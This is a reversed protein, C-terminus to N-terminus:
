NYTVGEFLDSEHLDEPAPPHARMYMEKGGFFLLLWGLMRGVLNPQGGQSAHCDAAASRTRGMAWIDIGAHIPFDVHALETLDVDQNRGFRRPDRGFLPLIRVFLRLLRRPFTQYYLKQPQYPPLDEPFQQPDGAAYFANVTAQHVAIHDPHRYGGIPDFTIVVQPRLRRISHVIRATVAEIDAAALANPHRNDASGPMGSDRYGLMEVSNLGLTRAACELENRRLEAISNFGELFHPDVTGAEGGTACILHVRTGSWAYRALTGGTGFTEDDPHALVALLSPYLDTSTHTINSMNSM